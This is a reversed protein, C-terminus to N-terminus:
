LLCQQGGFPPLFHPVTHESALREGHITYQQDSFM